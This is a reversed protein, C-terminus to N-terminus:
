PPTSLHCVFDSVAANGATQAGAVAGNLSDSGAIVVVHDVSIQADIAAGASVVTRDLSNFALYLHPFADCLSAKKREMGPLFYATHGLGKPVATGDEM